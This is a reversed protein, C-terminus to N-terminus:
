GAARRSRERRGEGGGSLQALKSWSGILIIGGVVVSVWLLLQPDFWFSARDLNQSDIGGAGGGFYIKLFLVAVLYMVAIVGIVALIFWWVLLKSSKRAREQAEFFNM